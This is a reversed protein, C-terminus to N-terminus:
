KRGLKVEFNWSFPGWLGWVYFLPQCYGDTSGVANFLVQSHSSIGCAKYGGWAWILFAHIGHFDVKKDM